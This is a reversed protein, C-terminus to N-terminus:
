SPLECKEQNLFSSMFEWYRFLGSRGIHMPNACDWQAAYSDRVDGADFQAGNHFRVNDRLTCTWVTLDKNPECSTALSPAPETGGTEITYLSEYIQSCIRLNNNETEDACYLSAPEVSQLFVVQEKGEISVVAFNEDAIPSSHAGSVSSAWAVASSGHGLPTLIAAERLANNAAAFLAAREPSNPTTSAARLPAAISEFAGGFKQYDAVLNRYMYNLPDLYDPTWGRIFIGDMLGSLVNADFTTAEQVELTADIGIAALQAQLDTAIGTPDPNSVRVADRYVIRTKFGDPYGAEALLARAKTLDTPWWPEGECGYIVACPVYHTAPASGKPFFNEVIRTSDITMAIAQRVRIDDFPEFTTNVGAYLTTAPLRTMVQYESNASLPEIDDASVNDIGDVVGAELQLRRAASDGQWKFVIRDSASKEGWYNAFRGLVVEEEDKSWAILQLPGTGNPATLISGDATAAALYGSDNIGYSVITMKQLFTPDTACLTFVVTREDPADIRALGPKPQGADDLECSAAGDVPYAGAAFPVENPVDASQGACGAAAFLLASLLALLRRRISM